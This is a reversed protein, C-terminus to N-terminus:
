SFLERLVDLSKLEPFDPVHLQYFRLIVEICRQRQQRSMVFLHMTPYDMRLLKRLRMSEEEDLYNQHFPRVEVFCGSQLDFFKGEDELNPYFGLFLTLHAMFVIHFNSYNDLAGDLWRLGMEIYNYLPTNRQESKTAYVLFECLFLVISLKFPEHVLSIYPFAINADKLKQLSLRTRYDFSIDLLTAPQFFQKKLKCRSSKTIKVIFSVRGCELTFMDVIYSQEGYKFSKLVVARTKTLM